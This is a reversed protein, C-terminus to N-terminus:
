SGRAIMDPRRSRNQPHQRHTPHRITSLAVSPMRVGVCYARCSDRVDHDGNRVAMLVPGIVPDCERKQCWCREMITKAAAFVDSAFSRTARATSRSVAAVANDRPSGNYV